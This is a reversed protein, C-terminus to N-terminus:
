GLVLVHVVNNKLLLTNLPNHYQITGVMDLVLDANQVSIWGLNYMFDVDQVFDWIKDFM